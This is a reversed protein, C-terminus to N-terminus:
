DPHPFKCCFRSAHMLLECVTHSWVRGAKDRGSNVNYTVGIVEPRERQYSFETTDQVVLITGGTAIVRERTAQFHGALIQGEDVRPNSLFRYAAKTSAWDQCALPLSAGFAGSMKEVLARLRQGLRADVFTSGALEGEWWPDRPAQMAM